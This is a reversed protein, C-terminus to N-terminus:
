GNSVGDIEDEYKCCHRKIFNQIKKTADKWGKEYSIASRYASKDRESKLLLELDRCRQKYYDLEGEIGDPINLFTKVAKELADNTIKEM